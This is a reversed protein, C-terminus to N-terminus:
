ASLKALLADDVTGTETAGSSAQFARVARATSPGAIGDIGSGLFGRYYLYVQAARVRLDPLSGASYQAFFQQLLGDYNNAAYNPGNYLRAFRRWDHQRLAEGAAAAALFAAMAALQRDESAAMAAVMDEAGTFGAPAHNEGMIQGLGWSASQLAAARDLQIAAALRDYQHAGSPGYGGASPQSVDPDDADYRHGTLRSFIHREFLIKPRRDSLFGCGSTEVALVAWLTAPEVGLADTAADVGSQTLPLGTGAFEVM